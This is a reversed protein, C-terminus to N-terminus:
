NIEESDKSNSHWPIAPAGVIANRLFRRTKLELLLVVAWTPGFVHDTAGKKILTVEALGSMEAISKM